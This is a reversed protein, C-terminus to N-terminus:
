RPLLLYLDGRESMQGAQREAAAGAGLFLDARAGVIAAGADQSVVFRHVSPTALYALAGPPVLRPDTAISRGPTLAVGLRGVPAGDARRFFTYRENAVLLEAQREAPLAELARRLDPLATGDAGVLGRERMTRALSRYPRGNTGAYRVGVERGDQLRLRGSGQVHLVFLAFPDAAWALELGRGALAGADIEARTPYPRLRGGEVRGALGRCECAGDLVAPEVDVLEPPRAYLPHRFTADPALRADLVPEYYATLLIPQPVRVVRFASAVAARRAGPDPVTDLTELLRRAAASAAADKRRAYAPLTAEVAARLSAADLDDGLPPLDHAEVAVLPGAPRPRLPADAALLACACLLVVPAAPIDRV